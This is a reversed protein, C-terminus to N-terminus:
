GSSRPGSRRWTDGPGAGIVVLDFQAAVAVEEFLQRRSTAARTGFKDGRVLRDPRDSTVPREPVVSCRNTASPADVMFWVEPRRKAIQQDIRRVVPKREAQGDRGFEFGTDVRMPSMTSKIYCDPILRWPVILAGQQCLWSRVFIVGTIESCMTLVFSVQPPAGRDRPAPDADLVNHDPVDVLSHAQILDDCLPGMQGVGPDM